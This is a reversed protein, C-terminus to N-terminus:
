IMEQFRLVKASSGHLFTAIAIAPRFCNCNPITKHCLLVLIVSVIRVFLRLILIAHVATALRGLEANLRMRIVRM